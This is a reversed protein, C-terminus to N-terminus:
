SQNPPGCLDGCRSMRQMASRYRVKAFLHYAWDLLKGVLPLKSLKVLFEFGIRSYIQRFVEIGKVYSEDPNRGHIVEMLEQLPVDTPEFEEAAIDTLRLRSHKDKRRIMEIERRCLPCKGDYFVEFESHDAIKMQYVETSM